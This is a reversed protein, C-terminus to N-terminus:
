YSCTHIDNCCLLVLAQESVIKSGRCDTVNKVESPRTCSGTRLGLRLAVEVEVQMVEMNM